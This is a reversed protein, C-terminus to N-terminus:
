KEDLRPILSAFNCPKHRFDLQEKLIKDWGTQCAGTSGPFCFIYTANAVGGLARSHIMSTGIEQYSILRFLEGIGEIEKDLLPKIAEPTVDRGTLGTGGTTVIVDIKDDAIWRSVVERIKYINDPVIVKEVLVHGSSVIRDKLLQGSRDDTENRTDSVTLVTINLPKFEKKKKQEKEAM